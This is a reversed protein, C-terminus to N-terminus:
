FRRFVWAKPNAVNIVGFDNSTLDASSQLLNSLRFRVFVHVLSFVFLKTCLRGVFCRQM